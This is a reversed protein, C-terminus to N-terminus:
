AGFSEKLAAAVAAAMEQKKSNYVKMDDKDDIFATELLGYSVGMEQLKRANFLTSSRMMGAGGGWIPFGTAGVVAAVIKEDIATDKKATNIYMGAGKCKGDGQSDKNSEATANFHVELVYDYQKFDPTPGSKHGSFVQYCDYNQDYMTVNLDPAQVQLQQYILSTFERTCDQEYYTTSGFTGHAGPDGQGHGAILLISAKKTQMPKGDPGLMVGDVVQNVAMKGNKKFYYREGNYTVWGTQVVSNLILYTSGDVTVMGRKARVGNPKFYYRKGKIKRIGVAMEGKAYYYVKNKIKVFGNAQKGKVGKADVFYGDPTICSKLMKGDAGVYYKGSIWCNKRLVGKTNFYYRGGGITQWGTCATGYNASSKKKVFFYTKKGYTFWGTKMRGDEGFGYRKGSIKAVGTYMRGLEGLEGTAALYYRKGNITKWGTELVGDSGFYYSHEGITLWGTAASGRPGEAGDPRFYYVDDKVKRWGTCLYGNTEYYVLYEGVSQLGRASSPEAFVIANQQAAPQTESQQTESQQTQESQVETPQTETQQTQGPQVETQQTESQQTQESQVETPQTQEAALSTGTWSLVAFVFYVRVAWTKMTGRM